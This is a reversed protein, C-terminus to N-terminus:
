GIGEAEELYLTTHREEHTFTTYQLIRDGVTSASRAVSGGNESKESTSKAPTPAETYRSGTEYRKSRTAPEVSSSTPVSLIKAGLAEEFETITELTLNVGGGLVRSVYSPTKGVADALEKQTLGQEDKLEHIRAVVDDNKRYFRKESSSIQEVDRRLRSKSTSM